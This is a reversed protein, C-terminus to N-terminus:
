SKRRRIRNGRQLGNEEVTKTIDLDRETREERIRFGKIDKLTAKRNLLVSIADFFVTQLSSSPQCPLMEEREELLFTLFFSSNFDM